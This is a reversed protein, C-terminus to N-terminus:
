GGPEVRGGRFVQEERIGVIAKLPDVRPHAKYGVVALLFGAGNWGDPAHVHPFSRLRLALRKEEVVLVFGSLVACSRVM